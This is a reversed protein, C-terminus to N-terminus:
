ITMEFDPLLWTPYSAQTDTRKSARPGEDEEEVCSKEGEEQEEEEEELIAVLEERLSEMELGM